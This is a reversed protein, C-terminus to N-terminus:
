IKQRPLPRMKMNKVGYTSEFDPTLAEYINWFRTNARIHSWIPVKSNVGNREFEFYNWGPQCKFVDDAINHFGGYLPNGYPRKSILSEPEYSYFSGPYRNM